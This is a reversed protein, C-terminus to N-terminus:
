VHYCGDFTQKISAGEFSFPCSVQFEYTPDPGLINYEGGPGPLVLEIKMNSLNNMTNSYLSSDYLKTYSKDEILFMPEFVPIKTGPIIVEVDVGPGWGGDFGGAPLLNPTTSTPIWVKFDNATGTLPDGSIQVVKQYDPTPPGVAENDAKQLANESKATGQSYSVWIDGKKSFDFFDGDNWNSVAIKPAQQARNNVNAPYKANPDIDPGIRKYAWLPLTFKLRFFLQRVDHDPDAFQLPYIFDCEFTYKANLSKCDIGYALISDCLSSVPFGFGVGKLLKADPETVMVVEHRQVDNPGTVAFELGLGNILEVYQKMEPDFKKFGSLEHHLDSTPSEKIGALGLLLGRKSAYNTLQQLANKIDSPLICRGDQVGDATTAFMKSIRGVGGLQNMYFVVNRNDSDARTRVYPILRSRMNTTSVLGQWKGNGNGEHMTNANYVSGSSGAYMSRCKSM